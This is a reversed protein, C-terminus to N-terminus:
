NLRKSVDNEEREEKKERSFKQLPTEIIGLKVEIMRIRSDLHEALNAFRERLDSLEKYLIVIFIIALVLVIVIFLM